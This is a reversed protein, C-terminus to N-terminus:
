RQEGEPVLVCSELGEHPELAGRDPTRKKGPRETYDIEDRWRLLGSDEVAKGDKIRPDM